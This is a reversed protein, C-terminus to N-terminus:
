LSNIADKFPGSKDDGTTKGYVGIVNKNVVVTGVDGGTPLPPLNNKFAAAVTPDTAVYLFVVEGDNVMTTTNSWIQVGGAAPATSSLTVGTAKEVAAQAANASINGAAATAGGGTPTATSPTNSSSSGGGCATALAGVMLLAIPARAKVEDEEPVVASADL